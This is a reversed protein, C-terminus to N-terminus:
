TSQISQKHKASKRDQIPSKFPQCSLASETVFPKQSLLLLKFLVSFYIRTFCLINCADSGSVEYYCIGAFLPWSMMPWSPDCSVAGSSSTTEQVSGRLRKMDTWPCNKVMHWGPIHLSASWSDPGWGAAPSKRRTGGTGIESGRDGLPGRQLGSSLGEM